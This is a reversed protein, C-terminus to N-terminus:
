SHHKKLFCESVRSALTDIIGSSINFGTQVPYWVTGSVVVQLTTIHTEPQAGRLHRAADEPCNM